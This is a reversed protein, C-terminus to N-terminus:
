PELRAIDAEAIGLSKMVERLRTKQVSVLTPMGGSLGLLNLFNTGSDFRTALTLTDMDLLVAIAAREQGLLLLQTKDYAGHEKTADVFAVNRGGKASLVEYRRAIQRSAEEIKALEAAARDIPEWLSAD